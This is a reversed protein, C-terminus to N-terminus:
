PVSLENRTKRNSLHQLLKIRIAFVLPEINGTIAEEEDFIEDTSAKTGAEAEGNVM